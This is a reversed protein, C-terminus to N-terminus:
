LLLAISFYIYNQDSWEKKGLQDFSLCHRLVQLHKSMVKETKGTFIKKPKNTILSFSIPENFIQTYYTKIFFFYFATGQRLM